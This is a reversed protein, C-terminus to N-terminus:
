KCERRRSIARFPTEVGYRLLRFATGFEIPKVLWVSVGARNAGLVDTFIQDGVMVTQAPTVEFREMTEVFGRVSPKASRRRYPVGLDECFDPCRHSRRSNSLVFLTM